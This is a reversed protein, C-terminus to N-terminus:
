LASTEIKCSKRTTIMCITSASSKKMPLLRTLELVDRQRLTLMEPFPKTKVGLVCQDPEAARLLQGQEVSVSEKPMKGVEPADPCQKALGTSLTTGGEQMSATQSVFFGALERVLSKDEVTVRWGAQGLWTGSRKEDAM